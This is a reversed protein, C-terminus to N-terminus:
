CYISFYLGHSPNRRHFFYFFPNFSFHLFIYFSIWIREAPGRQIKILRNELRRHAFNKAEEFANPARIGKRKLNKTATFISARRYLQATADYAHPVPKTNTMGSYVGIISAHLAESSLFFCTPISVAKTATL